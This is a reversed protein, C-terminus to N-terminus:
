RSPLRPGDALARELFDRQRSSEAGDPAACVDLREAIRRAARGISHELSFHSGGLLLLAVVFGLGVPVAPIHPRGSKGHLFGFVLLAAMGIAVGIAVEAPSHAGTRVRSIGVACVLLAAGLALTTRTRVGRGEGLLLALAGYFITAFSAHGSPSVVEADTLAHGCAHFVLKAAVTGGGAIALALLWALLLRGQRLAALYLGLLAAAPLLLAADALSAVLRSIVRPRRAGLRRAGGVRGAM